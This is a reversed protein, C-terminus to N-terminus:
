PKLQKPVEAGEASRGYRRFRYTLFLVVAGIFALPVATMIGTTLLFAWQSGDRGFGCVACAWVPPTALILTLVVLQGCLLTRIAPAM